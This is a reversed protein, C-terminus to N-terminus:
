EVARWAPDLGLHALDEEDLYSDLHSPPTVGLPRDEPLDVFHPFVANVLHPSLRSLLYEPTDILPKAMEADVVKIIGGLLSQDSLNEPLITLDLEPGIIRSVEERLAEHARMTAVEPSLTGSELVVRDANSLMSTVTDPAGERSLRLIRIEQTDTRGLAQLIAIPDGSSRLAKLRDGMESVQDAATKLADPLNLSAGKRVSMGVTRTQGYKGLQYFAEGLIRQREALNLQAFDLPRELLADTLHPRVHVLWNETMSDRIDELFLRQVQDMALDLGRFMREAGRGAMIIQTAGALFYAEDNNLAGALAVDSVRQARDLIDAKNPNPLALIDEYATLAEDMKSHLTDATEQVTRVTGDPNLRALLIDAPFPNDRAYEALLDFGVLPDRGPRRLIDILEAGRDFVRKALAYAPKGSPMRNYFTALTPDVFVEMDFTARWTDADAGTARTMFTELNRMRDGFSTAGAKFMVSMDLDSTIDLSGNDRMLFQESLPAKLHDDRLRRLEDTGPIPQGNLESRKLQKGLQKWGDFGEMLLESFPALVGDIPDPVLGGSFGSPWLNRLRNVVDSMAAPSMLELYVGLGLSKSWKPGLEASLTARLDSLAAIQNDIQNVDASLTLADALGPHAQNVTHGSLATDIVSQRTTALESLADTAGMAELRTKIVDYGGRAVLDDAFARRAQISGVDLVAARHGAAWGLAETADAFRGSSQSALADQVRTANLTAEAPEFGVRLAQDQQDAFKRLGPILAFKHDLPGLVRFRRVVKILDSADLLLSAVSLFATMAFKDVLEPDRYAPLGQVSAVLRGRDLLAQYQFILDVGDLMLALVAVGATVYLQGLLAALAGVAALGVQVSLIMIEEITMSSPSALVRGVVADHFAARQQPTMVAWPEDPDSGGMADKFLGEFGFGRELAVDTVPRVNLLQSYFVCEAPDAQDYDQRADRLNEDITELLADLRERALDYVEVDDRPQSKGDEFVVDRPILGPAGVTDRSGAMVFTAEAVMLATRAPHFKKNNQQSHMAQMGFTVPSAVIPGASQSEVLDKSQLYSIVSKLDGFMEDAKSFVTKLISLRVAADSADQWAARERVVLDRTELLRDQLFALLYRRFVADWAMLTDPTAGARWPASAMRALLAPSLAKTDEVQWFNPADSTADRGIPISPERYVGDSTLTAYIRVDSALIEVSDFATQPVPALKTRDDTVSPLPDFRVIASRYNGEAELLVFLTDVDMRDFFDLGTAFAEAPSDYWETGAWEDLHANSLFQTTQVTEIVTSAEPDTYTERHIEVRHRMAMLIPAGIELASSQLNATEVTKIRIAGTM